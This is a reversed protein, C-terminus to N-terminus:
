DNIGEDPQQEKRETDDADRNVSDQFYNEKRDCQGEAQQCGRKADLAIIEFGKRRKRTWEWSFYPGKGCREMLKNYDRIVGGEEPPRMRRRSNRMREAVAAPAAQSLEFDIRLARAWCVRAEFNEAESVTVRPLVPMLVLRRAM